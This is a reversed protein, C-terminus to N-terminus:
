KMYSWAGSSSAPTVSAGELPLERRLFDPFDGPIPLPSLDKATSSSLKDIEAIRGLVGGSSMLDAMSEVPIDGNLSGSVGTWRRNDSGEEGDTYLPADGEAGEKVEGDVTDSRDEDHSM